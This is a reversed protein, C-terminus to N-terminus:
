PTVGPDPRVPAEGIPGRRASAVANAAAWRWATGLIHHIDRGARWGLVDRAKTTDAWVAAPDGPRRPADVAPVPRGSAVEAARLVERVSSGRGTGLNIAGAGAHIMVHEIARVHADALDEVHVYDRIATGDPTAFDTGFVQLREGGLLARLVRPVLNDSADLPEGMSADEAAGAANFYRLSVSDVGHCVQYWRLLEEVMVKSAGYPNEPRLHADEGIPLREPTGYVAASSSFVLKRVGTAEMAELLSLAGGLNNRLLPAPRVMSAAVSKDGALHLVADIRHDRLLSVVLPEDLVDGVVFAPAASGAFPRRDLVVVDHGAEVLRRVCFRGIYGAGGTVLVKM